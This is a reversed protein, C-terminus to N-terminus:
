ELFMEGEDLPKDHKEVHQLAWETDEMLRQKTIRGKALCYTGVVDLHSPDELAERSMWSDIPQCCPNMRHGSLYLLYTVPEIKYRPNRKKLGRYDKHCKELKLWIRKLKNEQYKEM